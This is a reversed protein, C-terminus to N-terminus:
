GGRTPISLSTQLPRGREGARRGQGRVHRARRGCDRRDRRPRAHDDHDRQRVGAPPAEDPQPDPGADDRRAGDDARGRDPPRSRQRAGDRDDRAAAHRRLVPAPLRRDADRGEPHRGGEAARAGARARRQTTVDRHLQVAEVLQRGISHVPNLSTMPDQFIMSMEDGRIYRLEGPRRGDPAGEGEVSGRREFRHQAEPEAGHDDPM